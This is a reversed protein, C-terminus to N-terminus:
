PLSASAPCHSCTYAISFMGKGTEIEKVLAKSQHFHYCVLRQHREALSKPINKFCKTKQALDKFYSHKAEYRMCWYRMM